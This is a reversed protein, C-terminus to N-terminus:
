YVARVVHGGESPPLRDDHKDLWMRAQSESTYRPSIAQSDNYQGDGRWPVVAFVRPLSLFGDHAGRYFEDAHEGEHPVSVSKVFGDWSWGRYKPLARKKKGWTFGAAYQDRGVPNRKGQARRGQLISQAQEFHEPPVLVRSRGRGISIYAFQLGAKTLERSLNDDFDGGGATSIPTGIETTGISVWGPYRDAIPNRACSRVPRLGLGESFANAEGRGVGKGWEYQLKRKIPRGLLGSAFESAESDGALWREFADAYFGSERDPYRHGTTCGAEYARSKLRELDYSRPNAERTPRVVAVMQM